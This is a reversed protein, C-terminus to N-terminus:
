EAGKTKIFHEIHDVTAKARGRHTKAREHRRAFRVPWEEHPFEPHEDPRSFLRKAQIPSLGLLKAGKDWYNFGGQWAHQPKSGTLLCAWGAICGVTGCPPADDGYEYKTRIDTLVGMDLRRPEESIHKAVRRLLRVNM